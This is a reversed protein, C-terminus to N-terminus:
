VHEEVRAGSSRAAAMNITMHPARVALKEELEIPVATPSGQSRGSPSLSMPPLRSPAALSLTFFRTHSWSGPRTTSAASQEIDTKLNKRGFISFYVTLSYFRGLPLVIAIGVTSSPNHLYGALAALALLSTVSGTEVTRIMLRTLPAQLKSGEFQKTEQRVRWLVVLLTASILIDTGAATGLWIAARTAEVHTSIHAISLNSMALGAGLATLSCGLLGAGILRSGTLRFVRWILYTQAVCGGLSMTVCYVVIVWELSLVSYPNGWGSVLCVSGAVIASGDMLLLAVLALRLPLPNSRATTFYRIFFVLEVSFLMANVVGAIYFPGQPARM